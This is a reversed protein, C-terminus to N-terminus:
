AANVDRRFDIQQLQPYVVAFTEMLGRMVNVKEVLNYERGLVGWPGIESFHDEGIKEVAPILAYDPELAEYHEMVYANGYIDTTRRRGSLAAVQRRGGHRRHAARAAMLDRYIRVTRNRAPQGDPRRRHLRLVAGPPAPDTLVGLTSGWSTGALYIKREDFREALYRSLQPPTPSSATSSHLDVDPRDRGLSKGTGRQDWDVVVFDKAIDSYLFRTFPM